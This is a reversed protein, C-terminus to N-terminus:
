HYDMIRVDFPEKDWGFVIRWQGNIRISYLGRLDGKLNELHNNPPSRLDTLQNAYHLMDLKRRVVDRASDWGKKRPRMGTNFFTEADYDKFSRIAM